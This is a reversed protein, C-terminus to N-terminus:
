GTMEQPTAVKAHRREYLSMYHGTMKPMSFENVARARAAKGYRECMEADGAFKVILEALRDADGAPFLLGTEGAQVLEPNGGVDSAIVPLGTAMAELITNSIGENLSPLVFVGFGQLAGAVDDSAGTLTVREAMKGRSVQAEIRERCQGDGVIVLQLDRANAADGTAMAFARLLTEHDKIPDLRSVTGVVFPTDGATRDHRPQFRDADIGNYIQAIRAPSVGISTSLWQAMHQSVTVYRHVVFTSLRRLIRHSRRLGHLDNVDWGHEGHIRYRVGAALAVFQCDLSAINRTHVIQPRLRRLLRFLRVYCALDKGPKKQLDFIEVDDRAIREAFETYGALCIIVHRYATVPMSNILNVLGNELGGVGLRYIIHAVLPPQNSM